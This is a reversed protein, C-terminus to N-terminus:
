LIEYNEGKLFLRKSFYAKRSCSPYRVLKNLSSDLCCYTNMNNYKNYMIINKSDFFSTINIKFFKPVVQCKFFKNAVSIKM